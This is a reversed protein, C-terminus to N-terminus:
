DNSARKRARAARVAAAIKARHEPSKPRGRHVASMKMKAEESHTWGDPPGSRRGEMSAKLLGKSIKARSEKSHHWNVRNKWLNARHEASKVKGRLSEAIKTKVWDPMPVGAMRESMKQKTMKTHRFGLCSGASPSRNYGNEFRYPELDDLWGQERVFCEEPMCTELVLFVFNEPGYKEWSRQLYPIPHCGTKLANFHENERRKLDVSSGVYVKGNILNAIAYVGSKCHRAM